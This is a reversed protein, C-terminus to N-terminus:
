ISAIIKETFDKNQRYFRKAAAEVAREERNSRWSGGYPNGRFRYFGHVVEHVLGTSRESEPLGLSIDFLIPSRTVRSITFQNSLKLDRVRFNLFYYLDEKSIPRITVYEQFEELRWNGWLAETSFVCSDLYSDAHQKWWALPDHKFLNDM